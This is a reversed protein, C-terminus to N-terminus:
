CPSFFIPQKRRRHSTRGESIVWYHGHLTSKLEKRFREADEQIPPLVNLQSLRSQFKAKQLFLRKKNRQLRNWQNGYIHERAFGPREDEGLDLEEAELHIRFQCHDQFFLVKPIHVVRNKSDVVQVKKTPVAAVDSYTESWAANIQDLDEEQQVDSLYGPRRSWNELPVEEMIAELKNSQSSRTSKVPINLEDVQVSKLSRRIKKVSSVARQAASRM